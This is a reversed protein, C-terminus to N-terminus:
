AQSPAGVAAREGSVGGIRLNFWRGYSLSRWLWEVPGFRYLALWIPSYLLQVIWIALTIAIQTPIDVKDVLGLGTGYFILHCLVSQMLYNTLAMQGVAGLCLTLPKLRGAKCLLMVAGIWGMMIIPYATERMAWGLFFGEPVRWEHRFNWVFGYILLPYGALAAVAIMAWYSRKSAKATLIGRKYFGMGVLMMGGAIWGMCAFLNLTQNALADSFRQNMQGLWGSRYAEDLHAIEEASPLVAAHIGQRFDQSFHPALLHAIILLLMPVAFSLVGLTILTRPRMGRFLWILAGVIAYTVLIDGAWILYAHLLGIVALVALRRYHLVTASESSPSATGQQGRSGEFMLLGAGFLLSFLSLGLTGVLLRLAVWAVLNTSDTYLGAYPHVVAQPVLAFIEMNLPLISLVAM